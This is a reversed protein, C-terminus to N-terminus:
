KLTKKKIAYIVFEANQKQSIALLLFETYMAKQRKKRYCKILFKNKKHLRLFLQYM